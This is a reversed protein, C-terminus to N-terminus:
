SVVISEPVLCVSKKSNFLIDHEIGFGYCCNLLHQLGCVSPSLILLDDAYMICGYFARGVHCGYGSTSLLGILDDVYINFLIPSLVGGQRVGCTVKYKDSFTNNWRVVSFLKSYWCALTNIFCSPVNRQKLKNL